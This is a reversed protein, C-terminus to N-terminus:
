PGVVPMPGYTASCAIDYYEIETAKVQEAYIAAEAGVRRVTDLHVRADTDWYRPLTMLPDGVSGEPLYSPRMPDATDALPIWNFLLPGRPNITFGLEYGYQRAAQAPRVGFGGGPWIVAIPAKGFGALMKERAGELEGKLYEDTSQDSMPINHVYGHAQHDVWGEQSLAVNDPLALTGISDDANIWANVVKWGWDKWYRSFATDFYERYKRDDVILLVSRQPIKANTYLFDRVQQTTVAEFGMEHLDDMLKRFDQMSIQDAATVEGKTISHFMIVMVVTGPASNNPDWKARLYQCTDDLYTHPTDLKNLLDTSFGAPLPPPTRNPDLTATPVPTETATPLAAVATQSAAAFITAVAQTSAANVDVTPAPLTSTQSACAALIVTLLITLFTIRLKYNMM